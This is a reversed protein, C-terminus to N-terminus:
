KGRSSLILDFIYDACKKGYNNPYKASFERPHKKYEKLWFCFARSLEKKTVSMATVLRRDVVHNKKTLPLKTKKM